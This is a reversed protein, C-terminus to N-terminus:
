QAQLLRTRAPIVAEDNCRACCRADKDTVVPYPNHGRFVYKGNCIACTCVGGLGQQKIGKIFEKRTIEGLITLVKGTSTTRMAISYNLDISCEACAMEKAGKPNGCACKTKTQQGFNGVIVKGNKM